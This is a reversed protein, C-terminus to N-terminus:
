ENATHESRSLIFGVLPGNGHTIAEEWGDSIMTAIHRCTEGAAIYQDRVSQHMRDRILSNGGIAVVATRKRM